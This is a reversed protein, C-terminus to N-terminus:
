RCEISDAAVLHECADGTHLHLEDRRLAADDGGVCSPEAQHCKAPKGFHHSGVNQVNRTTRPRKWELFVFQKEVFDAQEVLARRPSDADAVADAQERCGSQELTALGGGVPKILVTEFGVACLENGLAIVAVAFIATSYFATLDGRIRGKFAFEGQRFNLLEVPRNPLESLLMAVCAVFRSMDPRVGNLLFSYDFEAADRVALSLAASLEDSEGSKTIALLVDDKHAIGIDGHAGEAPHLFMAPTGTSVMTSAIKQAIIGSKGMGTLIVKGPCSYILLVAKEYAPGVAERLRGLARSELEMVRNIEALIDM